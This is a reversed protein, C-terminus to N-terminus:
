GNKFRLYRIDTNHPSNGGFIIGYTLISHGCSYYIIKLTDESMFPTIVKIAYCVKIISSQYTIEM